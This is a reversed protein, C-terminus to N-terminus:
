AAEPITARICAILDAATEASNDVQWMIHLHHNTDFHTGGGKAARENFVDSNCTYIVPKGLGEGYGAEWYAGNNNDTLDVLLFRSSKIAVRLRDDILGARQHDRDNLLRLEFGTKKIAPRFCNEIVCKLDVNNFQLAMFALRDDSLGKKLSEYEKWGDFTLEVEIFSRDITQNGFKLLGENTMQEMLYDLGSLSSVGIIFPLSPADYVNVVQGPVWVEGLYRLLNNVCELPTAKVLSLRLQDIDKTSLMRESDGRFYRWMTYPFKEREEATFNFEQAWASNSIKYCGCQRCSIRLSDNLGSSESAADKFGCFKCTVM